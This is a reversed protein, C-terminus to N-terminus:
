QIFLKCSLKDIAVIVGENSGLRLRVIVSVSKTWGSSSDLSSLMRASVRLVGIWVGILCRRAERGREGERPIGRTVGRRDEMRTEGVLGVGDVAM